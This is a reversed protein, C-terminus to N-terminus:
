VAEKFIDEKKKFKSGSLEDLIKQEEYNFEHVYEAHKKDKLKELIKREKVSEILEERRKEMEERALDILGQQYEIEKLMMTFYNYYYNLVQTTLDDQIERLKTQHHGLTRYMEQKQMVKLDHEQQATLFNRRKVEEITNKVDLVRQLRFRFKKM